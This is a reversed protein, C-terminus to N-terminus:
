GVQGVVGVVRDVAVDGAEREPLHVHGELRPLLEDVERLLDALQTPVIAAVAEIPWREIFSSADLIASELREKM